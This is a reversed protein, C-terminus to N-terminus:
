RAPWARAGRALVLATHSVGFHYVLCRVDPVDWIVLDASRGPSLTGIEDGLGIARAAVCTVARLAEDITLGMQSVALTAMLLLNETHSTGPNCDTALAVEVGGDLLRRGSPFHGRLSLAAGPLLTAVVGARAMAELGADGLEELHDAGAAGVLAALEGGGLDHVQGAHLTRRLGATRAAELIATAEDRDFVGQELYVDCADALGQRAAEPIMRACVLQVYEARRDRFEPPLAHAGLLTTTVRVPHRKAVQRAVGLLRLEEDLGLGYGSKVEVTTVGGALVRDLRAGLLRGLEDDSAARTARVTSLIGGGAALIELYPRGALRMEYEQHRSGAFVLHTHPDVLGPTVVGGAADVVETDPGIWAGADADPGVWAIRGEAIAVAGDAILGLAASREPPMTAVQRAGRVVVTAATM